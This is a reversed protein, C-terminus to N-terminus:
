PRPNTDGFLADVQAKTLAEPGGVALVYALGQPLARVVFAIVGLGFSMPDLDRVEEEAQAMHARVGLDEAIKTRMLYVVLARADAAIGQTQRRRAKKEAREVITRFVGAPSYGSFGPVAVTTFRAPGRASAEHVDEIEVTTTLPTDPHLYTQALPRLDRLAEEVDLAIQPLVDKPARELM